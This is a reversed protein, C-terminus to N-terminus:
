AGHLGRWVFVSPFYLGFGGQGVQGIQAAAAEAAARVEPRQMFRLAEELGETTLEDIPIAPPGLGMRHVAAGWFHQDGFVPIIATPKGTHRTQNSAPHPHHNSSPSPPAQM